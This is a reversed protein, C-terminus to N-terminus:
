QDTLCVGGRGVFIDAKVNFNLCMRTLYYNLLVLREGHEEALNLLVTAFESNSKCCFITKLEMWRNVNSSGLVIDLAANENFQPYIPERTTELKNQLQRSEKQCKKSM